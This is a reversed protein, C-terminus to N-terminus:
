EGEESIDVDVVVADEFVFGGSDAGGSEAQQAQEVADGREDSDAGQAVCGSMLALSLMLSLMLLVVLFRKSETSVKM